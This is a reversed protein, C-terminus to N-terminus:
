WRTLPPEVPVPHSTGTGADGTGADGTGGDPADASVPELRAFMAETDFSRLSESLTQPDLEKGGALGERLLRRQDETLTEALESLKDFDVYARGDDLAM